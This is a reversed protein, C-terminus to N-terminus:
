PSDDVWVETSLMELDETMQQEALNFFQHAAQLRQLGTKSTDLALRFAEAAQDGLRQDFLNTLLHSQDYHKQNNRDVQLSCAGEREFESILDAAVGNYFEQEAEEADVQAEYIALDHSVACIGM